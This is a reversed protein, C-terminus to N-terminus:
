PGSKEPVFHLKHAKIYADRLTMTQEMDAVYSRAEAQFGGPGSVHAEDGTIIFRDIADLVKLQHSQASAIAKRIAQLEENESSITAIQEELATCQGKLRALAETIKSKPVAARDIDDGVQNIEQRVRELAELVPNAARYFANFAPAFQYQGVLLPGLEPDALITARAVDFGKIAVGALGGAVVGAAALRLLGPALRGASGAHVRSALTMLLGCVFGTVLGGLHAAMDIQPSMMGFLTSYGIITIAGVWMPKLVARPVERRRITLFGLLGGLIGFIAGSAGACIITPHTWLSAISGGAGAILYLAAFGLHGFFRELVPGTTLLCLVNIALHAFGIHVFMATLLRWTEGDFVVSPGFEAGWAILQEGTPSVASVGRAMMALFVMVCAGAFAQTVSPRTAITTLTEFKRIEAQLARAEGNAAVARPWTRRASARDLAPVEGAAPEGSVM